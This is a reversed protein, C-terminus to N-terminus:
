RQMDLKENQEQTKINSIEAKARTRVNKLTKPVILTQTQKKDVDCM